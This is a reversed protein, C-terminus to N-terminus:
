GNADERVGHHSKFKYFHSINASLRVNLLNSNRSFNINKLNGELGNLLGRM